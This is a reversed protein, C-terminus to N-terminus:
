QRYQDNPLGHVIIVGEDDDSGDSVSGEPEENGTDAKTLNIAEVGDPGIMLGGLPVLGSDALAEVLEKPIGEGNEQLGALLDGFQSMQHNTEIQHWQGHLHQVLHCLVHGPTIGNPHLDNGNEDTLQRVFLRLIFDLYCLTGMEQLTGDEGRFTITEGDFALELEMMSDDDLSIGNPMQLREFDTESM